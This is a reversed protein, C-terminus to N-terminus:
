VFLSELRLRDVRSLIGLLQVSRDVNRDVLGRRVGLLRYALWAHPVVGARPVRGALRELDRERRELACRTAEAESAAQAGLGGQQQRQPGAVVHQEGVIHVPASVAQQRADE